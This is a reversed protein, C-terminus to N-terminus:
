REEALHHAIEQPPGASSPQWHELVAYVIFRETSGFRPNCSTLTLLRDTPEKGPQGPVPAIVSADSPLVIERNRVAYTYYGEATRVYIRDGPSLEDIRDLVKGNTQRHGAVAVNGVAGPMASSDYHGLGLTDLVDQSTGQVLPREYDEGFRPIYVIGFPQGHAPAKGVVPEGWDKQADPQPTTPGSFQENLRQVAQAQARDADINTWWLQWGVFLLLVLGLTILLEGLIQVTWGVVGRPARPPRPAAPRRRSTM